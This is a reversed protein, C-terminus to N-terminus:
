LKQAWYISIISADSKVKLLLSCLEVVADVKQTLPLLPKLNTIHRPTDAGFINSIDNSYRIPRLYCYYTSSWTILPNLNLCINSWYYLSNSAQYFLWFVSWIWGVSVFLNAVFEHSLPTHNSPVLCAWALVEKLNVNYRSYIIGNKINIKKLPM